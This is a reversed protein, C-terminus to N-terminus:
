RPHIHHRNGRRLHPLRFHSLGLCQGLRMDMPYRHLVRELEVLEILWLQVHKVLALCESGDHVQFRDQGWNHFVMKQRYFHPWPLNSNWVADLTLLYFCNTTMVYQTDKLSATVRPSTRPHM